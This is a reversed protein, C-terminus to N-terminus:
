EPVNILRGGEGPYVRASVSEEAEVPLVGSVVVVVLLGVLYNVYSSRKRKWNLVAMGM